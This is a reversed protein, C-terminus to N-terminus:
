YYPEEKIVIMRVKENKLRALEEQSWGEYINTEPM